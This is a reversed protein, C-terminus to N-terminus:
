GASSPAMKARGYVSKYKWRAKRRRLRRAKRTKNLECGGPCKDVAADLVGDGYFRSCHYLRSHIFLRAMCETIWDANDALDKEWLKIHHVDGFLDHLRSLEEAFEPM